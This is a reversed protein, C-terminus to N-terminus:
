KAFLLSLFPSVHCITRISYNSRRLPLSQRMCPPQNQRLAGSQLRLLLKGRAAGQPVSLSLLTADVPQFSRWRCYRRLSLPFWDFTPLCAPAGAVMCDAPRRAKCVLAASLSSLLSHQLSSLWPLFLAEKQTTACVGPCTGAVQCCLIAFVHKRINQGCDMYEPFASLLAPAVNGRLPPLFAVTVMLGVKEGHM